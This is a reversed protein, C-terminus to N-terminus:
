PQSAPALEMAASLITPTLSCATRLPGLLTLASGMAPFTLDMWLTDTSLSSDPGAQAAGVKAPQAQALSSICRRAASPLTDTDRSNAAAPTGPTM